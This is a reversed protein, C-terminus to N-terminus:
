YEGKDEEREVDFGDSTKIDIRRLEDSEGRRKRQLLAEKRVKERKLDEEIEKAIRSGRMTIVEKSASLPSSGNRM